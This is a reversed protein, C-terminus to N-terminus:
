RGSSILAAPSIDLIFQHGAIGAAFPEFPAQRVKEGVWWRLDFQRREKSLMMDTRASLIQPTMGYRADSNIANELGSRCIEHDPSDSRFAHVLINADPPNV